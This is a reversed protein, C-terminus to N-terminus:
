EHSPIPLEEDRAGSDLWDEYIQCSYDRIEWKETEKIYKLFANFEKTTIVKNSDRLDGQITIVIRTQYEGNPCEFGEPSDCSFGLHKKDKLRIHHVRTDGYECAKCDASTWNNHGDPSNVFINADGESGTIRPASVLKGMVIDELEKSRIYTDVSLCATIHTWNGM